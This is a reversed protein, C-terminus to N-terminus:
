VAAPVGDDAESLEPFHLESPLVAERHPVSSPTAPMALAQPPASRRTGRDRGRSWTASRRHKLGVWTRLRTCTAVPACIRLSPLTLRQRVPQRHDRGGSWVAGSTQPLM